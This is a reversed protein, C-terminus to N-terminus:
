RHQVTTAARDDVETGDVREASLLLERKIGRALARHEHQCLRNGQVVASVANAGVTDTGSEDIGRQVDRVVAPEARFSIKLGPQGVELGNAPGDQRQLDGM